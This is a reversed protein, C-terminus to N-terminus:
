NKNKIRKGNNYLVTIVSGDDDYCLEKGHKKKGKYDCSYVLKDNEFQEVRIKNARMDHWIIERISEDFRYKFLKFPVNPYEKYYEMREAPVKRSGNYYSIAYVIVGKDIWEEQALHGNRRKQQILGTYLSDNARLFVLNNELYVDKYKVAFQDKSVQGM